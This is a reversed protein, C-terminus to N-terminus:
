VPRVIGQTYLVEFIEGVLFESEEAGQRLRDILMSSAPPPKPEAKGEVTLKDISSISIKVARRYDIFSDKTCTHHEGPRLLCSTDINKDGSTGTM